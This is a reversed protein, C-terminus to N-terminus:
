VAGSTNPNGELRALSERICTLDELIKLQFANHSTELEKMREELFAVKTKLIIHSSVGGLVLAIGFIIDIDLSVM